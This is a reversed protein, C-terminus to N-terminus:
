AAKLIATKAAWDATLEQALRVLDFTFLTLGNETRVPSLGQPSDGQLVTFILSYAAKALVPHNEKAEFQFTRIDEKSLASFDGDLMETNAVILGLPLDVLNKSNQIQGLQKSTLTTVPKVELLKARLEAPLGHLLKRYIELDKRDQYFPFVRGNEGTLQLIKALADQDAPLSALDLVLFFSKAGEGLREWSPLPITTRTEAGLTSPAIGGEGKIPSPQPSPSLFYPRVGKGELKKRAAKELVEMSAGTAKFYADAMLDPMNARDERPVPLELVVGGLSQGQSGDISGTALGASLADQKATRKEWAARGRADQYYISEKEPKRAIDVITELTKYGELDKDKLQGTLSQYIREFEGYAEERTLDKLEFIKIAANYYYEFAHGWKGTKLAEEAKGMYDRYTWSDELHSTPSEYYIGSLGSRGSLVGELNKFSDELVLGGALGKVKEYEDLASGKNGAGGTYLVPIEIGLGKLIKETREEDRAARATLGLVEFKAAKLEQIMVPLAPDMLRFFFGNAIQRAEHGADGWWGLTNGIGYLNHINEFWKSSSLYGMARFVTLDLDLYIREVGKETRLRKAHEVLNEGGINQYDTVKIIRGTKVLLHDEQFEGGGFVNLEAGLSAGIPNRIFIGPTVNGRDVGILDSELAYSVKKEWWGWSEFLSRTGEGRAFLIGAPSLKQILGFAFKKQEGKDTFHNFVHNAIVFLASQSEDLSVQDLTRYQIADLWARSEPDIRDPAVLLVGEDVGKLPIFLSILNRRLLEEDQVLARLSEVEKKSDSDRIINKISDMFNRFSTMVSPTYSVVDKEFPYVIHGRQFFSSVREDRDLITFQLPVEKLSAGTKEYAAKILILVTLPEEFFAPGLLYIRLPKRIKQTKAQSLASLLRSYMLPLQPVHRFFESAHSSGDGTIGMGLSGDRNSLYRPIDIRLPYHNITEIGKKLSEIPNSPVAMKAADFLMRIGKRIFDATYTEGLFIKGELLKRFEPLSLFAGTPVNFERSIEPFLEVERDGFYALRLEKTSKEAQDHEGAGLSAGTIQKTFISLSGMEGPPGSLPALRMSEPKGLVPKYLDDHVSRYVLFKAGEKMEGAIKQLLGVGSMALSGIDFYYIFDFDGFPVDNFSEPRVTVQSLDILKLGAMKDLLDQSIGALPGDAEYGVVKAGFLAAVALTRGDGSGLDLIRDGPKVGAREFIEAIHWINSPLFTGFETEKGKVFFTPDFSKGQKPARPDKLYFERYIDALVPLAKTIDPDRFAIVQRPVTLDGTLDVLKRPAEGLSAAKILEFGPATPQASVGLGDAELKIQNNNIYNNINFVYKSVSEGLSIFSVFLTQFLYVRLWQFFMGPNKWSLEPRLAQRQTKTRIELVFGSQLKQLIHSLIQSPNTTYAGWFPLNFVYTLLNSQLEQRIRGPQLPISKQATSSYSSVDGGSLGEAGSPTFEVATGLSAGKFKGQFEKIHDPTQGDPRQYVSLFNHTSSLAKFRGLDRAEAVQKLQSITKANKNWINEQYVLLVADSSMESRLKENLRRWSDPGVLGRDFYYLTKYPTFKFDDDLYNIPKEGHFSSRTILPEKEESLMQVAEQSLRLLRPDIEAMTVDLGFLAAVISDSGLGSGLSLYPTGKPIKLARFMTVLERIDSPLFIGIMKGDQYVPLGEDFVRKVDEDSLMQDTKEKGLILDRYEWRNKVLTQHIAREIRQITEDYQRESWQHIDDGDRHRDAIDVPSGVGLSQGAIPLAPAGPVSPALHRLWREQNEKFKDVGGTRFGEQTLYQIAERLLEEERMPGAPNQALYSVELQSGFGRFYVWGGTVGDKEVVVIYDQRNQFFVKQIHRYVNQLQTESLPGKWAFSEKMLQSLNDTFAMYLRTERPHRMEEFLTVLERRPDIWKSYELNRTLLAPKGLFQDVAEFATAPDAARLLKVGGLLSNAADRNGTKFQTASRGSLLMAQVERLPLRSQIAEPSLGEARYSDLDEQFIRLAEYRGGAYFLGIAKRLIKDIRQSIEPNQRNAQAGIARVLSKSYKARAASAATVERPDKRLQDVHRDLLDLSSAIDPRQALGLLARHKLFLVDDRFDKDPMGEILRILEGHSAPSPDELIISEILEKSRRELIGFRKREDEDSRDLRNMERAMKLIKKERGLSQGVALSAAVSASPSAISQLPAVIQEIPERSEGRSWQGLASNFWEMVGRPREPSGIPPLLRVVRKAMREGYQPSNKATTVEPPLHSSPTLSSEQNFSGDRRGGMMVKLYPSEGTFEFRPQIVTVPFGKGKLEAALPDTHFGGTVVAVATPRKERILSQLTKSFIRDRATVLRYFEEAPKLDWDFSPRNQSGSGDRFFNEFSESTFSGPDKAIELWEERTLELALYHRVIRFRKEQALTERLAPDGGTWEDELSNTWVTLENMFDTGSIRDIEEQTAIFSLAAREENGLEDKSELWGRLQRVLDAKSIQSTDFKQKLLSLNAKDSKSLREFAGRIWRIIEVDSDAKKEESVLDAMKRLAPFSVPPAGALAIMGELYALLPLSGSSFSERLSWSRKLDAPFQKDILAKLEAACEDLSPGYSEFAQHAKRFAEFNKDYIDRKEIGQFEATGPGLISEIEGGSLTGEGAEEWLVDALRVPDPYARLLDTALPGSAGELAVLSVHDKRMLLDLIGQISKQAGVISHADQILYIAPKGALGPSRYLVKGIDSPLPSSANSFPVGQQLTDGQTPVSPLNSALVSNVSFTFLLVWTTFTFFFRRM